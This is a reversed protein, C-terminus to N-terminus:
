TQVGVDLDGIINEQPHYNHIRLTPNESIAVNEFLNTYHEGLEPSSVDNDLEILQDVVSNDDSSTSANDYHVRSENDPEETPAAIQADVDNSSAFRPIELHEEFYARVLDEDPHDTTPTFSNFLGDYDFMRDPGKGQSPTTYKQCDVHYWEEVCGSTFNFVRKMPSAYGLFYVKIAKEKFKGVDKKLMTCLCRFPELYKLNPKRNNLLKYSTKKIRKATLVCNLTDCATNV